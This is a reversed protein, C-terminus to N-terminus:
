IGKWNSKFKELEAKDRAEREAVRKKLETISEGVVNPLIGGIFDYVNGRDRNKFNRMIELAKFNSKLTKIDGDAKVARLQELTETLRDRESEIDEPYHDEDVTELDSELIEIAYDIEEMMYKSLKM